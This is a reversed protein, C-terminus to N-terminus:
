IEFLLVKLSREPDKEPFSLPNKLRQIFKAEPCELTFIDKIFDTNLDPANLAALVQGGHPMLQPLRRVIKAYDKTAAFSGKQFTPPDIIVLDYPGKKKIRSWSKLIDYGFFEVRKMDFDNIRHNERGSNLESKSMDINVVHQAGGHLAAVSLSCTYSFLNLIRKGQSNEKLWLRGSVMDLFLGSNQAHNLRVTFKCEGEHVIHNTPIEGFVTECPAQSLYRRQIVIGRINTYSKEKLETVITEIAKDGTEAFLTILIVPPYFDIVINEQGPYCHGRGHFIRGTDTATKNFFNNINHLIENM